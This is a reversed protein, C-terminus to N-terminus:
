KRNILNSILIGLIYCCINVFMYIWATINYFLLINIGFIIILIIPLLFKNKKHKVNYYLSSGLFLTPYIVQVILKYIFVNLDIIGLYLMLPYGFILIMSFISIIIIDLYKKM